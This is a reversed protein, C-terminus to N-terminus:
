KPGKIIIRISDNKWGTPSLLGTFATKADATQIAIQHIVSAKGIATVANNGIISNM